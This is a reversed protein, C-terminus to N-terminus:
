RLHYEMGCSHHLNGQNLHPQAEFAAFNMFGFNVYLVLHVERVAGIKDTDDNVEVVVSSFIFHASATNKCEVLVSFHLYTFEPSSIAGRPGLFLPQKLM